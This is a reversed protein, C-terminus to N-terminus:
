SVFKRIHDCNAGLLHAPCAQFSDDIVGTDTRQLDRNNLVIESGQECEGTTLHVSDIAIDSKYGTGRVAVIEVQVLIKVLGDFFYKDCLRVAFAWALRHMWATEGSGKSNACETHPVLPSNLCNALSTANNLFQMHSNSADWVAYRTLQSIQMQILRSM